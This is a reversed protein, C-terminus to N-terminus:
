RLVAVTIESARFWLQITGNRNRGRETRRVRSCCLRVVQQSNDIVNLPIEAWSLLIEQKCFLTKFSCPRDTVAQTGSHKM